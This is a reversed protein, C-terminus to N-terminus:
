RMRGAIERASAVAAVTLCWVFVIITAITSQVEDLSLRSSKRWILLAFFPILLGIAAVVVLAVNRRSYGTPGYVARRMWETLYTFGFLMYGIGLLIGGGLWLAEPPWDSGQNLLALWSTLFFVLGAFTDFLLAHRAARCLTSEGPRYWLWDFIRGVAD